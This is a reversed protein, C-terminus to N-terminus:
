RNEWADFLSCLEALGQEIAVPGPSLIVASKIDHIQANRVAPIQTWGERAVLLDPRFHKGCWSGIIIHPARRAVEIPDKIIRDKASSHHSLEEFIDDGGATEIMMLIAEVSRQDFAHVPVGVTILDRSIDASWSDSPKRFQHDAETPTVQREYTYGWSLRL